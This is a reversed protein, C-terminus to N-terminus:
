IRVGGSVRPRVLKEGSLADSVRVVKTYTLGAAKAAAFIVTDAVERVGRPHLAWIAGGPALHPVARAIRLLDTTAHIGLFIADSAAGVGGTTLRGARERLGALLEADIVNVVSVHAGRKVDLKDLVSKPPEALKAAWASAAVPGLTLLTTGAAHAVVLTDGEAHIRSISTRPIAHRAVGRAILAADDLHIAGDGAREAGNKDRFRITCRTELGM